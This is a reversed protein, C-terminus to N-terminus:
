AKVARMLEDKGVYGSIKGEYNVVPLANFNKEVLIKKVESLPTTPTTTVPSNSMIRKVSYNRIISDMHKDVMERFKYLGFLVDRKTVVGGIGEEMIPILPLDEELFLRRAHVVRDEKKLFVVKTKMIDAVVGEVNCHAIIDTKTVINIEDGAVPLGSFGMRKFIEVAESVDRNPEISEPNHTMCSSVYYSSVKLGGSASGIKEVVDRETIMGVLKKNELVPLRSIGFRDFCKVVASLRQDKDITIAKRMIDRILL